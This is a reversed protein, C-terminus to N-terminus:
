RIYYLLQTILGAIKQKNKLQYNRRGKSECKKCLTEIGTRKIIEEVYIEFQYTFNNIIVRM